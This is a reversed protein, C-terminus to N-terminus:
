FASMDTQPGGVEQLSCDWQLSSASCIPRELKISRRVSFLKLCLPFPDILFDGPQKPAPSVVGSREPASLARM